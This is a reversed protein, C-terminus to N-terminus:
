EGQLLTVPLRIRYMTWSAREDPNIARFPSDGTRRFLRIPGPDAAFGLLIVSDRTLQERLDLQRLCERSWSALGLIHGTVNVDQQPDFEGVTSMLLLAKQEQGIAGGIQAGSGYGLNAVVGRFPSGWSTQAKALTSREFLEAMKEGEELRYCRQTLDVRTGDFPLAGLRFAYISISRIGVGQDLDVIPQLLYCDTLDVGLENVIYSGELLNRGRVTIEGSMTGGVLGGWRGGFQKLTGRIRVDEIVASGPLLRYESPDAYSSMSEGVSTGAPLPRLFCESLAPESAGAADTPLWLDVRKDTGSKFGFFATAYGFTKGGDLDIVSFQHVTDGFGGRVSNVVILTIISAAIAVLAFASWSHHRWRRASVVSWSGLTAVIVYGISFVGAVALYLSASTSFAVASVVQSFLPVPQPRAANPDDVVGLHFVKQFFESSRGTGSFLDVLTIGCFIVHGRGERRSTILTSENFSRNPVKRADPRLRCNVIPVPNPFGPDNPDAVGLLRARIRPLNEVVSLDGIEVPLVSRFPESLRLAGASRSAAILLTGGRRVWTLLAETQSPTLDDPEADEWVIYDVTELGVWLGPLDMPSMHAVQIQRRFIDRQDLGVLDQLRGITGTSISLILLDDDAIVSPRQAAEAHLSLKGQSVVPVAEGDEDFLEVLFRGQGRAPNAPVYLYVRQSENTEKRMHVGVEDYCEDGDTDFQSVRVAGDFSHQNVLALDVIIPVWAGSRVVHGLHITPFGVRTVNVEIDANAMGGPLGLSAALFVLVACGPWRM